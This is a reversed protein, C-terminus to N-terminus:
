SGRPSKWPQMVQGPGQRQREAWRQALTAMRPGQCARLLESTREWVSLSGLGIFM